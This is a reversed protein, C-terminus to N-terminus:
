AGAHSSRVRSILRNRGDGRTSCGATTWDVRPQMAITQPSLRARDVRRELHPLRVFSAIWATLYTLKSERKARLDQSLRTTPGGGAGSDLPQGM